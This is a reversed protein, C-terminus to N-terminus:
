QQMQLRQISPRQGAAIKTKICIVKGIPDVPKYEQNENFMNEMVAPSIIIPNIGHSKLENKDFVVIFNLDKGISFLEGNQM